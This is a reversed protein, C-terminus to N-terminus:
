TEALLVEADARKTWVVAASTVWIGLVHHCIDLAHLIGFPKDGNALHTLEHALFFLTFFGTVGAVTARFWKPSVSMVLMPMAAYICMIVLLVKLGFDGPDTSWKAFNGAVASHTLDSVFMALFVIFMMTWGKAVIARVDVQRAVTM